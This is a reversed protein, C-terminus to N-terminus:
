THSFYMAVDRRWWRMPGSLELARYLMRFCFSTMVSVFGGWIGGHMIMQKTSWTPRNRASQGGGSGVNECVWSCWSTRSVKSCLIFVSGSLFFMNNNTLYCSLYSFRIGYIFHFMAVCFWCLRVFCVCWRYSSLFM